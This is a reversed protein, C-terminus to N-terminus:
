LISCEECKQSVELLHKLRVVWLFVDDKIVFKLSVEDTSKCGELSIKGKKVFM